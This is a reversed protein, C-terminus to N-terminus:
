RWTEPHADLWEREAELAAAREPFPGLTPGGIRAMDATWQNDATPEVDSVRRVKSDGLGLLPRLRDHYIFQIGGGLRVIIRHEM